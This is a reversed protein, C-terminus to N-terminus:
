PWAHTWRTAHHQAVHRRMRLLAAHHVLSRVMQKTQNPQRSDLPTTSRTCTRMDARDVHADDCRRASSRHDRTSAHTPRRRGRQRGACTSRPGAPLQKRAAVEEELMTRAVARVRRESRVRREASQATHTCELLGVAVLGTASVAATEVAATM